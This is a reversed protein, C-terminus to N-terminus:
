TYFETTTVTALQRKRVNPVWQQVPISLTSFPTFHPKVHEPSWLLRALTCLPFVENCPWYHVCTYRIMPVPFVEGYFPVM